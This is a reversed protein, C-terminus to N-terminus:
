TAYRCLQLFFRKIQTGTPEDKIEFTRRAMEITRFKQWCNTRELKSVKVRSLTTEARSAVYPNEDEALMKLIPMPLQHNEALQYRVDADDDKALKALIDFPTNANESVAARVDANAHCALNALTHSPTSPNTAILELVAPATVHSNDALQELLGSATYPSSALMWNSRKNIISELDAQAPIASGYAFTSQLTTCFSPGVVNM